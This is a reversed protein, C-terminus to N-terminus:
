PNVHQKGIETVFQCISLSAPYHTPLFESQQMISSLDVIIDITLQLEVSQTTHWQLPRCKNCLMAWSGSIGSHGVATNNIDLEPKRSFFLSKSLLFRFSTLMLSFPWPKAEDCGKDIQTHTDQSPHHTSIHNWPRTETWTMHWDSLWISLWQKRLSSTISWFRGSITLNM